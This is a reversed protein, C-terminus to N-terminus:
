QRPLDFFDAIEFRAEVGQEAALARAAEIATPAFDFGVVEFGRRAFPMADHGRGCGVVALRGPTPAAPGELLAELPPSAAGLDWGTEGARWRSEWFEVM